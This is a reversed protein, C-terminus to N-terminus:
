ELDVDPIIYSIFVTPSLSSVPLYHAETKEMKESKHLFDGGKRYLLIRNTM